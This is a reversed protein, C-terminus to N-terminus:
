SETSLLKNRKKFQILFYVFAAMIVLLIALLTLIGWRLGKSAPSDADGYFCVSCAQALTPLSSLILGTIVTIVWHM